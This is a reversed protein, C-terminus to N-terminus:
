EVVFKARGVAGGNSFIVALYIGAPWTTVDMEAAQQSRYVCQRSVESGFISYVRLEMNQHHETNEFEFTVRGEKVPNPFAKIPIWRISEYYQEPSPTDHISTVVLCDTLDVTGSQITHPCLSDYVYQNTDFPVSELNANIKYLYIDWLTPNSQEKMTAVLFDNETTKIMNDGSLTEFPREYFAHLNGSTDYLMEGGPYYDNNYGISGSSIFLSDNIREVTMLYNQSVEPGFVSDTIQKYGYQKGNIDYFMLLSYETDSYFRRMGVGMFLTDNLPISAFAEGFISDRAAFPLIWKERLLSDVGIFFARLFVHNPNGPFPWYCYGSIIYEQNHQLLSYGVATAIEPYNIKSAYSHIWLM